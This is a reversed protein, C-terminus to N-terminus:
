LPTVFAERFRALRDDRPRRALRHLLTVGRLIEALVAPGLSAAVVPKVMDVQFLRALDLEGPLGELLGAIRRYRAPEAGLGGADLAELEQRAQELRDAAAPPARERLRAVLGDIPEPGTM